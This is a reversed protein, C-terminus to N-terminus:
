CLSERILSSVYGWTVPRFDIAMYASLRALNLLRGEISGPGTDYVDEPKITTFLDAQAGM